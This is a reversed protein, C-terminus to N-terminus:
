TIAPNNEIRRCYRTHMFADLNLSWSAAQLRSWVNYVSVICKMMEFLTSTVPVGFLSSGDKETTRTAKM